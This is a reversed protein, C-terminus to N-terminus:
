ERRFQLHFAGIEGGCRCAPGVFNQRLREAFAAADKLSRGRLLIAFEEGGLRGLQEGHALAERSMLRIVEDGIDHGFLDNVRKFHDIDFIVASLAEGMAAHTAMEQAREFFARRNLAGSLHDITAMRVLERQMSALRAAARLRAYLEEIAPPKSIFDDAGSDLAEILKKRDFNSSMLVIYIPRRSVPLKRTEHCLDMGSMSPLEVSTILADVDLDTKIYALRM